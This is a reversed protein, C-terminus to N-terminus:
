ASVDSIYTISQNQSMSPYKPRGDVQWKILIGLLMTFWVYASILPLLWYPMIFM